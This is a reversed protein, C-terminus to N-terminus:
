DINLIVNYFAYSWILEIITGGCTLIQQAKVLRLTQKSWTGGFACINDEYILYFMSITNLVYFAKSVDNLSRFRGGENM